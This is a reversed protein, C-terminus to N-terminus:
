PAINDANTVPCNSLGLTRRQHDSGSYRPCEMARSIVQSGHAVDRVRVGVLDGGRIKSDIAPNFMALDRVDHASQLHIRIARIGQPKLPTRGVL